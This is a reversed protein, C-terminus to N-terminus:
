GALAVAVLLAATVVLKVLAVVITAGVLPAPRLEGNKHLAAAVAFPIVGYSTTIRVLHRDRVHAWVPGGVFVFLVISLALIAVFQARTLGVATWPGREPLGGFFPTGARGEM